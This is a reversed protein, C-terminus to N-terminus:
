TGDAASRAGLRGDLMLLAAPANNAMRLQEVVTAASREEEVQETIFWQLFVQTAYDKKALAKEHLAEILKTVKKEHELAMEFISAPAGFATPPKDLAQLEVRGGRDHMFDFLRMAHGLEEQAQLRMWRAFGPLNASEFHACMALYIYASELEHKIQDNVANQVDTDM